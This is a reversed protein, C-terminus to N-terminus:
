EVEVLYGPDNLFLKQVLTFEEPTRLAKEKSTVIKPQPRGKKKEVLIRYPPRKEIAVYELEENHSHLQFLYYEWKAIHRHTVIQKFAPLFSDYFPIGSKLETISLLIENPKLDETLTTAGIMRHSGLYYNSKLTSDKFGTIIENRHGAGELHLPHANNRLLLVPHVHGFYSLFEGRLFEHGDLEFPKKLDISVLPNGSFSSPTDQEDYARLKKPLTYIELAETNVDIVRPESGGLTEVLTNQLVHQGIRMPEGVTQVIRRDGTKALRVQDWGHRVDLVIDENNNSRANLLKSGAPGKLESVFLEDELEILENRKKYFLRQAGNIDAFAYYAEFGKPKSVSAPRIRGENLTFITKQSSDYVFAQKETRMNYLEKGNIQVVETEIEIVAEQAFEPVSFPEKSDIDLFFRDRGNKALVLDKNGIQILTSFDLALAKGELDFVGQAHAEVVFKQRDAQFVEFQHNGAQVTQVHRTIEQNNILYPERTHENIFARRKLGLYVEQWEDKAGFSIHKSGLGTIREGFYHVLELHQDYVLKGVQILNMSPSMLLEAGRFALSHKSVKGPLSCLVDGKLFVPAGLRFGEIDYWRGREDKRYFSKTYPEFYYDAWFEAEALPQNSFDRVHTGKRTKLIVFAHNAPIFVEEVKAEEIIYPKPEKEIGRKSFAHLIEQEDKILVMEGIVQISRITLGNLKQGVKLGSFSTSM